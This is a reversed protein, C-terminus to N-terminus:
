VFGNVSLKVLIMRLYVVFKLETANFSMSYVTGAVVVARRPKARIDSDSRLLLM